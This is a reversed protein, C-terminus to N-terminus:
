NSGHNKNGGFVINKKECFSLFKGKLKIRPETNSCEWRAITVLPIGTEQSLEAQTLQLKLRVYKVKEKWTM